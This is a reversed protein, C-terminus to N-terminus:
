RHLAVHQNSNRVNSGAALTRQTDAPKYMQQDISTDVPSSTPAVDDNQYYVRLLRPSYTFHPELQFFLAFNTVLRHTTTDAPEGTSLVM